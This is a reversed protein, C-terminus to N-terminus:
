GRDSYVFNLLFSLIFFYNAGCCVGCKSGIFGLTGTWFTAFRPCRIFLLFIVLICAVVLSCVPALVAFLFLCISSIFQIFFFATTVAM